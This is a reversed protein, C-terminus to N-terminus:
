LAALRREVFRTEVLEERPVVTLVERETVAERFREFAGDGRENADARRRTRVPTQAEAVDLLGRAVDRLGGVSREDDDLLRRHRHMRRLADEGDQALLPLGRRDFDRRVRLEQALT